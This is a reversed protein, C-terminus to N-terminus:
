PTFYLIFHTFFLVFTYFQTTLTPWSKPWSQTKQRQLQGAKRNKDKYTM